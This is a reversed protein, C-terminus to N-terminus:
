TGRYLPPGSTGFDRGYMEAHAALGPRSEATEARDLEQRYTEFPVFEDASLKGM